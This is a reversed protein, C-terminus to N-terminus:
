CIFLLERLSSVVPAAYQANVEQRKKAFFIINRSCHQNLPNGLYLRQMVCNLLAGVM